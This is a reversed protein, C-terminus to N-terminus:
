CSHREARAAVHEFITSRPIGSLASAARLSYGADVLGCAFTLPRGNVVESPLRRGTEGDRGALLRAKRVISESSRVAVAVDLVCVGEGHEVIRAYLETLSETRVDADPRAKLVSLERRADDVVHELEVVNRGAAELRQRYYGVVDEVHRPASSAPRSHSTPTLM